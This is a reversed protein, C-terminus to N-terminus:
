GAKAAALAGELEHVKKDLRAVEESTAKLRAATVRAIFEYLAAYFSANESKPKIDQLFQQDVALCFTKARAVVSASARL